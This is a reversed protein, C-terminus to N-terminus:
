DDYDEVENELPYILGTLTLTNLDLNARVLELNWDYLGTNILEIYDDANIDLINYQIDDKIVNILKQQLPTPNKLQINVKIPYTDYDPENEM